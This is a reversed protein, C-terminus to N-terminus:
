IQGLSKLDEKDSKKVITLWHLSILGKLWLLVSQQSSEQQFKVVIQKFLTSVLKPDKLNILTNQIM